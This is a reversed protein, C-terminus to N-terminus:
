YPPSGPRIPAERSLYSDVNVVYPPYSSSSSALHPHAPWHDPSVLPRVLVPRIHGYAPLHAADLPRRRSRSGRTYYPAPGGYLPYSEFGADPPPPIRPISIPPTVAPFDADPAGAPYDRNSIEPSGAEPHSAEPQRSSGPVPADSSYQTDHDTPAGTENDDKETAEADKVAATRIRELEEIMELLSKLKDRNQASGEMAIPRGARSRVLDRLDDFKTWIDGSAQVLPLHSTDLMRRLMALSKKINESRSGSAKTSKMDLTLRALKCFNSLPGDRLAKNLIAAVKSDLDPTTGTNKGTLSDMDEQSGLTLVQVLTSLGYLSYVYFPEGHSCQVSFQALLAHCFQISAFTVRFSTIKKIRTGSDIKMKRGFEMLYGIILDFDPSQWNINSSDKLIVFAVDLIDFFATIIQIKDHTPVQPNSCNSLSAYLQEWLKDDLILGEMFGELTKPTSTAVYLPLHTAFAKLLESNRLQERGFIAEIQTPPLMPAYAFVEVLRLGSVVINLTDHLPTTPGRVEYSNALTGVNLLVETFRARAQSSAWVQALGLTKLLTESIKWAMHPNVEEDSAYWYSITAHALIALNILPGDYLIDAWMERDSPLPYSATPLIGTLRPWQAVETTKWVRIVMCLPKLYDPFKKTLLEETDLRADHDLFERIVLARICSARLAISSNATGCFSNVDKIISQIARDESGSLSTTTSPPTQSILRLSKIYASARTMCAEQSLELSTICKRLQAAIHWPVDDERLCEVVLKTDTLPSIIFGPLGSLFIHMDDEDIQRVLWHLASQDLKAGRRKVERKLARTQDLHIHHFLGLGKRNEFGKAARSAWSRRVVRFLIIYSVRVFSVCGRIPTTLPTQYPANRFILPLTSLVMYVTLLAISCYRATAGVLGNIAHLWDSLSFFFFFVAIHLLIPVGYTLRRMQFQSLGDFLYTRTRGRKHPADSSQSYQLYERAWQQILTSLLASTMSFFLSLFM